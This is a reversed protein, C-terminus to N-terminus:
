DSHDVSGNLMHFKFMKNTISNANSFLGLNLSCTHLHNSLGTHELVTQRTRDKELLREM